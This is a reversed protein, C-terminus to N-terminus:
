KFLRICASDCEKPCAENSMRGDVGRRNCRKYSKKGVWRCNKTYGKNNIYKWSDDNKCGEGSAQSEDQSPKMSDTSANNCRFWEPPDSSRKCVNERIWNYQASVRAYVGPFDKHACGIGWSVVGVQVDRTGGRIVLPGGSDGNCSDKGSASACIMNRTIDGNYDDKSGSIRGESDECDDNSLVTVEVERLEDASNDGSPDTVGWGVVTVKTGARVFDSNVEVLEFNVRNSVPRELFLLMFDGDDEDYDYGPWEMEKDIEVEDGDNTTLDHRGIVARYNGGSCHAASLVVDPAILSGGCFQGDRDELSVAYSYRGKTAEKGGIIRNEKVKPKKFLRTALSESASAACLQFFIAARSLDM